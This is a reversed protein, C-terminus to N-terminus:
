NFHGHVIAQMSIKLLIGVVRGNGLTVVYTALSAM